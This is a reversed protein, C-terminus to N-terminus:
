KVLRLAPPTYWLGLEAAVRDIVDWDPPDYRRWWWEPLRVVNGPTM